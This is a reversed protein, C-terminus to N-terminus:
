EGDILADISSKVQAYTRDNMASRAAWRTKLDALSTAAAVDDSRNRDRTRLTNIEDVTLKVVARMLRGLYDLANQYAKATTKATEIAAALEAADLADKEAQTYDVVSDGAVKLYKLQKGAIFDKISQETPNTTDTYIKVDPRGTFSTPDVSIRFEKVQAPTALQNYIVVSPM